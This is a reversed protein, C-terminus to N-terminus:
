LVETAEEFLKNSKDGRVGWRIVYGAFYRVEGEDLSNERAM